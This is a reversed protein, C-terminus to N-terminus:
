FFYEFNNLFITLEKTQQRSALKNNIQINKPKNEKSKQKKKVFRVQVLLLIGVKGKPHLVPIQLLGNLKDTDLGLRLWPRPLGVQNVPGLVRVRVTMVGDVALFFHNCYYYFLFSVFNAGSLGPEQVDNTLILVTLIQSNLALKM